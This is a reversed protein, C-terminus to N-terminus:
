KELEWTWETSLYSAQETWINQTPPEKIFGELAETAHLM